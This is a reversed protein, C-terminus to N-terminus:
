GFSDLILWWLEIKQIVDYFINWHYGFRWRYSKLIVMPITLYMLYTDYILVTTESNNTIRLSFKDFCEMVYFRSNKLKLEITAFIANINDVRNTIFCRYDHSVRVDM